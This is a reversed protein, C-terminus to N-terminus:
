APPDSYRRHAGPTAHGKDPDSREVARLLQILREDTYDPWDLPWTRLDVRRAGASFRLV